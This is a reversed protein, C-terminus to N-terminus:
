GAAINFIITRVLIYRRSPADVDEGPFIDSVQANISDVINNCTCLVARLSEVKAYAMCMWEQFLCCGRFLSDRQAASPREHLHFAYFARPTVGRPGIAHRLEYNWGDEGLPFLLVHHLADFARDREDIRLVGGARIHVVIDRQNARAGADDLLVCM